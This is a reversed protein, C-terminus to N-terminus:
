IYLYKLMNVFDRYLGEGIRYSMMTEACLIYCQNRSRYPFYRYANGEKIKWARNRPYRGNPQGSLWHEWQHLHDAQKLTLQLIGFLQHLVSDVGEFRDTDKAVYIPNHTILKPLYAKTRPVIIPYIPCAALKALMPIGRPVLLNVAFFPISAANNLDRRVALGRGGDTYVLVYYGQKIYNCMKRVVYPDEALLIPPLRFGERGNARLYSQFGKQKAVVESILLVFPIAQQMLWRGLLRYSGVHYTALIGPKDLYAHLKSWAPRDFIALAEPKRQDFLTIAQHLRAQRFLRLLKEAKVGTEFHQLQAGFFAFSRVIADDDFLAEESYQKILPQIKELYTNM